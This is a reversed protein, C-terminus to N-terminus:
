SNHLKKERKAGKENETILLSKRRLSSNLVDGMDDYVAPTDTVKACIKPPLKKFLLTM